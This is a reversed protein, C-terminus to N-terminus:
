DRAADTPVTAKAANKPETADGAGADATGAEIQFVTKDSSKEGVTYWLSLEDGPRAEVVISYETTDAQGYILSTRANQVLVLGREPVAGTLQYQGHGLSAVDPAAPPPLPLTPSICGAALAGLVAWALLARRSQRRM